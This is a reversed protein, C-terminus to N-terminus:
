PAIILQSTWGKAKGKTIIKGPQLVATKWITTFTLGNDRCFEGLRNTIITRGDPATLRYTSSLKDRIKQKTEPDGWVKAAVRKAVEKQEPRKKGTNYLVAKKLNERSITDYFIRKEPDNKLLKQAESVKNRAKESRRMINNDGLNIGSSNIHSFGGHGGENMNYSMESVIVLEKEKEIMEKKTKFVFLVEKIFNEKGYKKIAAKLKKGSGLYSDNPDKTSHMGIYYKKNILNTTKYITYFM